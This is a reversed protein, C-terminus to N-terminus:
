RDHLVGRGSVQNQAGSNGANRRSPVQSLLSYLADDKLFIVVPAAQAAEEGDAAEAEIAKYVEGERRIRAGGANELGRRGRERMRGDGVIEPAAVPELMGRLIIECGEGSLLLHLNNVGEHLARLFGHLVDGVILLPQAHLVAIIKCLIEGKGVGAFVPALLGAFQLCLPHAVAQMDGGECLHQAAGVGFLCLVKVVGFEHAVGLAAAEAANQVPAALPEIDAEAFLRHGDVRLRPHHTELVARLHPILPEDGGKGQRLHHTNDVIARWLHLSGCFFKSPGAAVLYRKAEAPRIDGLVKPEIDVILIHGGGADVRRVEFRGVIRRFATGRELCLHEVGIIGGDGGGIFHQCLRYFLELVDAGESLFVDEHAVDAELGVGVDGEGRFDVGSALGDEVPEEGEVDAGDAAEAEPVIEPAM